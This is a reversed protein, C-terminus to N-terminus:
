CLSFGRAFCMVGERPDLVSIVTKAAHEEAATSMRHFRGLAALAEAVSRDFERNCSPCETPVRAHEIALSVAAECEPCFITVAGIDKRDAEVVRYAVMISELAQWLPLM